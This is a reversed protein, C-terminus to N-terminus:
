RDGGSHLQMTGIEFDEDHHSVTVTAGDTGRVPNVGDAVIDV